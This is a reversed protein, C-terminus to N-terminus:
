FDQMLLPKFQQRYCFWMLAWFHQQFKKSCSEVMEKHTLKSRKERYSKLTQISYERHLLYVPLHSASKIEVKDTVFYKM